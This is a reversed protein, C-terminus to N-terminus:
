RPNQEIGSERIEEPPIPFIYKPSNPDLTYVKNNLNRELTMQTSAEQNLRRLDAWRLGRGILEKQREVLIRDLVDENELHDLGEWTGTTYRKELLRNLYGKAKNLDGTRFAAESAIILMEGIAIGGFFRSNGTLKGTYQYLGGEMETFYLSKRLDNEEYVDMLDTDVYTENGNMYSYNQLSSYYILEANFKDFPRSAAPDLENFDLSEPHAELVKESAELATQYDGVMLSARAMLGWAVSKTPRTKPTTNTPLNDIALNIDMFLAQYSAELNSRVPDVQVDPEDRLVIGMQSSNDEGEKYLPAYVQLLQLYAYARHFHATGLLEYFGKDKEGSYTELGKLAVNAYFVQEYPGAWVNTVGGQYPDDAWIYTAQEAPNSLAAWGEDTTWFEDSAISTLGAQTNFVVTNDLLAQIDELTEPVLVSHDPRPDLFSDCASLLQMLSIIMIKFIPKSINKM